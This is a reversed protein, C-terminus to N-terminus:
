LTVDKKGQSQLYAEYPSLIHVQFQEIAEDIFNLQSILWLWLWVCILMVNM